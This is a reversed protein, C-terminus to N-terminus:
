KKVYGSIDIDFFDALFDRVEEDINEEDMMINAFQSRQENDMENNFVNKAGEVYSEYTIKVYEKDVLIGKKADELVYGICDKIYTLIKKKVGTERIKKLQAYGRSLNEMFEESNPNEVLVSYFDMHNEVIIESVNVVKDPDNDDEHSWGHFVLREDIESIEPVEVKSGEVLEYEKYLEGDFWFLVKYEKKFVAYFNKDSNIKVSDLDVVEGGETESWGMFAYGDKIPNEPAVPENAYKVRLSKNLEGNVFFKVTFKTDAVISSLVEKQEQSLADFLNEDNCIRNATEYLSTELPTGYKVEDGLVTYPRVVIVDSYYNSDIGHIYCAFYVETDNRDFFIDVDEGDVNGKSVGKTYKVGCDFTFEEASLGRSTLFAKRTVVLGYESTSERSAADTNMAAIVRLGVPNEARVEPNDAFRPVDSSPVVFSFLIIMMLTLMIYKLRIM